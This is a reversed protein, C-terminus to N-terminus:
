TWRWLKNLLYGEVLITLPLLIIAIIVAWFSKKIAFIFMLAIPILMILSTIVKGIWAKISIKFCDWIKLKKKAM